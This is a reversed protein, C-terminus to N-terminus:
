LRVCLRLDHRPNYITGAVDGNSRQHSKRTAKNSVLWRLGTPSTEDYYFYRSFDVGEYDTACQAGRKNVLRWNHPPYTLLYNELNIADTNTLYEEAFEVNFGGSEKVTEHWDQSRCSGTKRARDKRGKGVYFVIGNDKRIHLYVYYDNKQM